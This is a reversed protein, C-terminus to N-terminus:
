YRWAMRNIRTDIHTVAVRRYTGIGNIGPVNAAYRAVTGPSVGVVRIDAAACSRHMSRRRGNTRLGSTVQVESNFHDGIIDLARRLTPSFCHTVVHPYAPRWRRGGQAGTAITGFVSTVAAVPRLLPPAPRQANLGPTTEATVGNIEIVAPTYNYTIGPKPKAGPRAPEDPPDEPEGAERREYANLSAREVRPPGGDSQVPSAAAYSTQPAAPDASTGGFIAFIGAPRQAPAESQPPSAPEARAVQTVGAETAGPQPAGASAAAQPAPAGSLSEAVQVRDGLDPRAPPVPAAAPAQFTVAAEVPAAGTAAAAGAPAQSQPIATPLAGPAGAAFGAAQMGGAESALGQTASTHANCGALALAAAALALAPTLRAKPAFHKRAHLLGSRSAFVFM